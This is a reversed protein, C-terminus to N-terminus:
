KSFIFSNKLFSFLLIHCNPYTLSFKLNTGLIYPCARWKGTDKKIAPNGKIDTTGDRTYKDTTDEM